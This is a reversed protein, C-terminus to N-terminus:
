EESGETPYEQAPAAAEMLDTQSIHFVTVSRPLKSGDAKEVFTVVKVGKEGKKVQRGKALWANYTFVDVRPTANIGREEFAYIVLADNAGFPRSQAKAITAQGAKIKALANKVQEIKNEMSTERGDAMDWTIAPM